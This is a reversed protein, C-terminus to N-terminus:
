WMYTLVYQIQGETDSKSKMVYRGGTEDMDCWDQRHGLYFLDTHCLIHACRYESCCRERHNIGPYQILDPLSFPVKNGLCLSIPPVKQQPASTLPEATVEVHIITFVQWLCTGILALLSYVPFM